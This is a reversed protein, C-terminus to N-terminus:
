INNYNISPIINMLYIYTQHRNLINYANTLVLVEHGYDLCLKLIDMIYPNIFPEGGTFSINKTGLKDNKIEELYPAVDDKTIFVLKDNTPTSEIYCNSCSLNCQTGTNFWLTELKTLSVSARKQGKATIEPHEFKHYQM